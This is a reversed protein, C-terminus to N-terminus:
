ARPRACLVLSAPRGTGPHIPEHLAVLQFGAAHVLAIWSAITRFYWPAPDTFDDSFGSWSGERWGDVYPADGGAVVPHLTQIILHGAPALLAPVAALMRAVADDGILAFNSVAVDFRGRWDALRAPDTLAGDAIDEYSAVRYDGPPTGAPHALRAQEVLAPVVDVGACIMGDAALAHSLWGEGCGIDLVTRPRVARVTDLIAANTVAIRSGIAGERVARTWPAANRQWSRVVRADSLPADDGLAQDPPHASM